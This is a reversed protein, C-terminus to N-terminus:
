KAINKSNLPIKSQPMEGPALEGPGPRPEPEENFNKVADKLESGMDKVIGGLGKAAEITDNVWDNENILAEIKKEVEYNM